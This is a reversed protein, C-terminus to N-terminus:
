DPPLNNLVNSNANEGFSLYGVISFISFLIFLISFAILLAYSFRTPTRPSNM